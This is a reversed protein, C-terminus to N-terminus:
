GRGRGRRARAVARGASRIAARRGKRCRAIGQYVLRGLAGYTLRMSDGTTSNAAVLALRKPHREVLEDLYDTILRDSWLGRAAMEEVREAPLIPDCGM